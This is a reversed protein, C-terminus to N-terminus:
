SLLKQWPETFRLVQFGNQHTTIWLENRDLRFQPTSAAWDATTGYGTLNYDSGPRYGLLPPPSYYAIEKPNRPDRIDFVRVGSEFYTCAVLRADVVRDVGCYHSDYIFIAATKTDPLTLACNAPDHVELMMRSALKPKRENSIDLLRAFGFPPQGAACAQEWGELGGSGNEDAFLIYPKGGVTIHQTMQAIAGDMWLLDGVQKVEASRVRADIESVDLIVLGNTLTGVGANRASDAVYLRTGEPNTSLDHVGGPPTFTVIPKPNEPRSIDIAYIQGNIEAGYYTMGDRAVNGAHGSVNPVTISALLKPHACDKKIDYISFGPGGYEIGMLLGRGEHVKLSEWPDLMAPETLYETAEPRKPDSVDVVV